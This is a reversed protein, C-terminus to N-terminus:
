EIVFYLVGKVKDKVITPTAASPKNKMPIKKNKGEKNEM